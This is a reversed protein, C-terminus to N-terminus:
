EVPPAQLAIVVITIMLMMTALGAVALAMLEEGVAVEKRTILWGLM